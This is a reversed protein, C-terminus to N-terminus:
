RLWARRDEVGGSAGGFQDFVGGVVVADAAFEEVGSRAEAARVKGFVRDGQDLGGLVGIGRQADDLRDGRDVIRPLAAHRALDGRREAAAQAALGDGHQPEGELGVGVVRSAGDIGRMVARMSM